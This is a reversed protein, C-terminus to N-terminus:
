ELYALIGQLKGTVIARDHEYNAGCNTWTIDVIVGVKLTNEETTFQSFGLISASLDLVVNFVGLSKPM